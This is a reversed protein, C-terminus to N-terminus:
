NKPGNNSTSGERSSNLFPESLRSLFGSASNYVTNLNFFSSSNSSNQRTVENPISTVEKPIDQWEIIDWQPQHHTQQQPMVNPTPTPDVIPKIPSISLWQLLLDISYDPFAGNNHIYILYCNEPAVGKLIESLHQQTVGFGGIVRGPKDTVEENNSEKVEKHKIVKVTKTPYDIDQLARIYEVFDAQLLGEKTQLSQNAYILIETCTPSDCAKHFATLATQDILKDIGGARVPFPIHGLKKGQQLLQTNATALLVMKAKNICPLDNLSLANNDLAMFKPAEFFYYPKIHRGKELATQAYHHCITLKLVYLFHTFYDHLAKDNRIEEETVPKNKTIPFTDEDTSFIILEIHINNIHNRHKSYVQQLETLLRLFDPNIKWGLSFNKDGEDSLSLAKVDLLFVHRPSM